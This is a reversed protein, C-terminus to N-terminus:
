DKVTKLYALDGISKRKGLIIVLKGKMIAKVFSLVGELNVDKDEVHIIVLFLAEFNKLYNLEDKFLPLSSYTLDNTLLLGKMEAQYYFDPIELRNQIRISNFGLSKIAVMRRKLHEVNAPTTLGDSYYYNDIIGKLSFPQENLLFCPIGEKIGISYSHLSFSGIIKDGSKNEITYQYFFPKDPTWYIIDHLSITTSASNFPYIRKQLSPTLLTIFGFPCLTDLLFTVTQAKIDTSVMVDNIPESIISDLYVPGMIGFFPSKENLFDFAIENEGEILEKKVKLALNVQTSGNYIKHGNLFISYSGSVKTLHLLVEDKVFDLPINFKKRFHYHLGKKKSKNVGFLLSGIPYPLLCSGHYIRPLLSEKNVELDYEGNLTLYPTRQFDPNPCSIYNNNRILSQGELTYSSPLAPKKPFCM